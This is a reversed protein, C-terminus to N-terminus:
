SFDVLLPCREDSLFESVSPLRTIGFQVFPDLSFQLLSVLFEGFVMISSFVISLNKGFSCFLELKLLHLVFM